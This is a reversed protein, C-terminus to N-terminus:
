RGGRTHHCSKQICEYFVSSKQSERERGNYKIQITDIPNVDVYSVELSGSNTVINKPIRVLYNNWKKEGNSQSGDIYEDLRCAIFLEKSLTCFNLEITITDTTNVDILTEGNYQITEILIEQKEKAINMRDEHDLYLYNGIVNCKLKPKRNFKVLEPYYAVDSFNRLKM